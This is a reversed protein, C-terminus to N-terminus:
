QPSRRSPSCLGQPELMSSLMQAEIESPNCLSQPELTFPLSQAEIDAPHLLSQPEIAMAMKPRHTIAESKSM